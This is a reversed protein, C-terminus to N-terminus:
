TNQAVGEASPPAQHWASSWRWQEPKECLGAKVPNFVVYRCIREREENDRIWHDFAEPQWFATGTRNLQQNAEHATYGKWSKLIESLTHNPLPWLVAHVHNPMIVWPGLLYRQRDFHLLAGAVVQATEPRRLHCEGVGKDLYREVKRHYDREITGETETPLPPTSSAKQMNLRRLGEAREQQFQMLVQRPLSDALRFTVFYSVGERTVHPLYGRSHIGTRLPNSTESNVGTARLEYRVRDLSPNPEKPLM